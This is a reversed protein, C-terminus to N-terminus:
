PRTNKRFCAKLPPRDDFFELDHNPALGALVICLAAEAPGCLNNAFRKLGPFVSRPGTGFVATFQRIPIADLM